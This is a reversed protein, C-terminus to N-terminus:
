GKRAVSGSRAPPALLERYLSEYAGVMAEVSFHEVARRRGAAGELSRRHPEQLYGALGDCLQEPDGAPVLTGTVGEEVLEPLGGVRSAVVPLGSAMAELVTVPIGEALSPLAFVDFAALRTAVDTCNGTLEVADAVDLEAALARLSQEEPGSGIVVLRLDGRKASFRERLRAFARILTAQDKVATLRGVTGIVLVGGQGSDEESSRRAARYRKTDVGNYIHRVRRKPIRVRETLYEALHRSVTVHRQVWPSLARRLWRYRWRTGDLDAMDWGHEAHVRGPVGSLAAVPQCELAALNSTHVVDPRLQCLLRYLRWQTGLGWGPPKHLAHVPVGDPLRRRFAEDYDALCVVVHRFGHHVSGRVLEVLINELGGVDLRYLIHAILPRSGQGDRPRRRDHDITM